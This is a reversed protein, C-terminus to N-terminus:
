QIKWHKRQLYVLKEREKPDSFRQLSSISAKKRLLPNDNYRTKMAISLKEIENSDSYRTKMACPKCSRNEKVSQNRTHETKHM